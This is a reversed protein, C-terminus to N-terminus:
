MDVYTAEQVMHSLSQNEGWLYFSLVLSTGLTARLLFIYWVTKMHELDHKSTLGHCNYFSQNEFTNSLCLSNEEFTPSRQYLNIINCFDGTHPKIKHKGKLFFCFLVLVWLVKFIWSWWCGGLLTINLRYDSIFEYDISRVEVHVSFFTYLWEVKELTEWTNRQRCIFLKGSYQKGALFM